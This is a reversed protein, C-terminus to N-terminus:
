QVFKLYKSIVEAMRKRSYPAKLTDPWWLAAKEDIMEAVRSASVRNGHLCQIRWESLVGVAAGLIQARKDENVLKNGHVKDAQVVEDVLPSDDEVLHLGMSCLLDYPVQIERDLAWDIIDKVIFLRKSGEGESKVDARELYDRVEATKRNLYQHEDANIHQPRNPHTACLLNATEQITWKDKGVWHDCIMRFNDPLYHYEAVSATKQAYNNMVQEFADFLPNTVEENKKDSM